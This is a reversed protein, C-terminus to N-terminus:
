GVLIIFISHDSHTFGTPLPLALTTDLSVPQGFPLILSVQHRLTM